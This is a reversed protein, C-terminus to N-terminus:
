SQHYRQCDVVKMIGERSGDLYVTTSDGDSRPSITMTNYAMFEKIFEIKSRPLSLMRRGSWFSGTFDGEWRERGDAPCKFKLL